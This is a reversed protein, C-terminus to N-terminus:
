FHSEYYFFCPCIRETYFVNDGRQDGRYEQWIWGGKNELLEGGYTMHEIDYPIDDPSYYFGFYSTAPGFGDGGCYFGICGNKEITIDKVGKWDKLQDTEGAQICAEIRDRNESVLDAIQQQNLHDSGLYVLFIFLFVLLIQLLVLGTIIGIIIKFAKNMTAKAREPSM